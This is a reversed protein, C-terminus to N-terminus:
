TPEGFPLLPHDLATKRTARGPRVAVAEEREETGEDAPAAIRWPALDEERLPKLRPQAAKRWSGRPFRFCANGPSILEAVLLEDIGATSVLGPAHTTFLIQLPPNCEDVFDEVDGALARLLAMLAPLRQPALGNEPEELCLLRPAGPDQEQLALALFRLTGDSLAHAPLWLGSRDCVELWTLGTEEDFGARIAQVDDILDILRQALRGELGGDGELGDRPLQWSRRVRRWVSILAKDEGDREEPSGAQGAVPRRLAEPELQLHRWSQMERRALWATPYDSPASSLVTARLGDTLVSIPKVPLRDTRLSVVKKGKERGTSIFSGKQNEAASDTKHILSTRWHNAHPFHLLNAGSRSAVPVLEEHEIELRGPVEAEAPRWRLVLRYRLHNATALVEREQEDLGSHPVIMEAEFEIKATQRAGERHFLLQPIQADAYVGRQARAATVLDEGAVDGLFRLADFLNSKGTGNAGAVCTVPGFFLDVNALNKFGKVKLRTLM